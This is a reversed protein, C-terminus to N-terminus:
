SDVILKKLMRKKPLLRTLGNRFLAEMAVFLIIIAQLVQVLDKSVNDTFIDVFLGGRNLAGFLIAALLVGAPHNRGLLAVAIGTFGYDHSFDHYYRYRYGLVENIGVMGALAGSLAMALIIQKRVSIGGYEAASPNLGVARIEYGWKTRWLFVWVLLCALLALLFSVNLPIRQPFDIGLPALLPHIRPIHAQEAIPVTQMIPDGQAKFYSQTLYSVLGTAIFNLMITNIVEHSGFRAKLYGPIAGWFGGAVMAALMALPALMIGPLKAFTIGIWAAAFAGIYLQGEAGINLLGCKFALSVALGTFILPTAYFLTYGWNDFTFNGLADYLGFSSTILLRYVEIPNDGIILIVLGGVIFAALCAILPFLLERLFSKM